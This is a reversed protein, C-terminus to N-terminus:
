LETLTQRIYKTTYINPAYINVTKTAEESIPGRIVICLEEKDSKSKLDIKDSILITMRNDKTLMQLFFFNEGVELRHRNKM